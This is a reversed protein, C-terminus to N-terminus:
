FVRVRTGDWGRTELQTLIQPWYMSAVVVLDVDVDPLRDPCVVPVGEVHTGDKARDSDVFAIVNAGSTLHTRCERGLSGAGYIAVRRGDLPWDDSKSLFRRLPGAPPEPRSVRQRARVRAREIAVALLEPVRDPNFAERVTIRAAEGLRRALQPDAWLRHCAAAFTGADPVRLGNVNDVIPARDALDDLAVVPLGHAMAEVVKVQQGTGGILPCVAFRATAYIGALNDVPGVLEVGEVPTVASCGTGVVRVSFRPERVRILPLVRQAFYAYGQQNLLTDSMVYVPAADYTNGPPSAAVSMPMVSVSTRSTHAEVLAAELPSIAITGDFAEYAAYEHASPELQRARFFDEQLAAAPVHRPDLPRAPLVRSLSLNMAVHLSVLDIMDVLRVSGAPELGQALTAWYGYNVLVVDPSLSRALSRFARYLTPPTYGEWGTDYSLGIGAIISYDGPGPVHVHLKVGLGREAERIADQSPRERRPVTSVLLTVDYGLAQLGRLVSANRAQAGDRIPYPFFPFFVLARKM